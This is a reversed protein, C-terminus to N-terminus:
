NNKKSLKIPIIDISPFIGIGARGGDVRPLPCQVEGDIVPYNENFSIDFKLILFILILKIENRAFRRGPCYATGAGFPLFGRSSIM